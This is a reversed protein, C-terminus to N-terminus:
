SLRILASGNTLEVLRDEVYRVRAVVVFDQEGLRIIALGRRVEFRGYPCRDHGMNEIENLRSAPISKCGEISCDDAIGIVVVGGSVSPGNGFASLYDALAAPDVKASKREFRQDEPLRTFLDSDGTAFIEDVSLLHDVQSEMMLDLLSLQQAGATEKM